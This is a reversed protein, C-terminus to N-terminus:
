KSGGKFQGLYSDIARQRLVALDACKEAPAVTAAPTMARVLGIHKQVVQITLVGGAHAWWPQQVLIAPLKRVDEPTYPPDCEYLDKAVKVAHSYTSARRDSAAVEMVADRLHDWPKPVPLKREQKPAPLEPKDM